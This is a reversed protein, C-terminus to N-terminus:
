TDIKWRPIWHCILIHAVYGDCTESVLTWEEYQREKSTLAENHGLIVHMLDSDFNKNFTFLAVAVLDHIGNKDALTTLTMWFLHSRFSIRYSLHTMVSQSFRIVNTYSNSIEHSSLLFVKQNSKTTPSLRREIIQHILTFLKSLQKLNKLAIDQCFFVIVM